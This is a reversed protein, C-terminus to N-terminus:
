KILGDGKDSVQIAGSQLKKFVEAVKAAVDDSLNPNKAPIGIGNNKANFTLTQGGPFNGEKVSKVMDYSAQDVYKMASTLIVSKTKASDYYGQAYQDVDVGVVWVQKGAKTRSVAENIVGVGVGGAAAFIVTVGRDYMQAAIQQGAAVDNFTGQYIVNEAKLSISTGLNANAYKVGQQFGWNYRQVAPIEMGGIFGFDGHKIQLAAAVGALFGAEHEAFNISVTNKGVKIKSYDSGPHPVGDILVFKTDAYREQATYISNEFKFGPTVILTYGADHLNTIEKDYDAQTTGAPRLYKPSFGFDKGAKVLGEWTGQNFSRDDITGSDTVMGVMLKNAAPAKADQSGCGTFIVAIMLVLLLWPVSKKSM